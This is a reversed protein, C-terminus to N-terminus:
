AEGGVIIIVHKVILRLDEVKRVYSLMMRRLIM